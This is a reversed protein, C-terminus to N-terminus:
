FVSHWSRGLSHIHDPLKKSGKLSEFMESFCPANYEKEVKFEALLKDIYGLRSVKVSGQKQEITMSLFSVTEGVQITLGALNKM